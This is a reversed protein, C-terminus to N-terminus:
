RRPLRCSQRSDSLTMSGILGPLAPPPFSGVKQQAKSTPSTFTIPSSGPLVSLSRSGVSFATDYPSPPVRKGNRHARRCSKDRPCEAGHSFAPAGPTSPIFSQVSRPSPGPPTAVLFQHRLRIPGIRHPPHSYRFRTSALSREANWRDSAEGDQDPVTSADAATRRGQEIESNLGARTM